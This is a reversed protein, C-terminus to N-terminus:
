RARQGHGKYWNATRQLGEELSLAPSWDLYQKAKLVDVELSDCLRRVQTTRGVLAAFSHLAALPVNLIRPRRGLAHALLRALESSSVPRPDSAFFVNGPANPHLVCTLLLDALNWVSVLSRRNDVAGLPLPVGRDVARMFRLFNARVGPGFVLPPRVIAIELGTRAAVEALEVEAELKSVGYPDVPHPRDSERFGGSGKSTREGNVKVSSVYVLRRVGHEAACQALRRTGVVNVRRFERLPDPARDNMIHARNALHIVGTVGRLAKSWDTCEDIDGVAATHLACGQEAANWTRVAATVQHGASLARRTFMRGVFGNAGTVLLNEMPGGNGSGIM